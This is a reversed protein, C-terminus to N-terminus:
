VLEAILKDLYRLKMACQAAESFNGAIYFQNFDKKAGEFEAAVHSLLEAKNENGSEIDSAKERLEMQEVLLAQSPNFTNNREKNVFINQLALMHNAREVDDSLFKYADNADASEKIARIKEEETKFNDPHVQKQKQFYKLELIDKDIFYSIELGLLTFYNIM